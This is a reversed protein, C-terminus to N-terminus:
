RLPKHRTASERLSGTPRAFCIPPSETAGHLKAEREALRVRTRIAALVVASRRAVDEIREADAIIRESRTFDRELRM